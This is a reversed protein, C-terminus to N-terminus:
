EYIIETRVPAEIREVKLSPTQKKMLELEKYSLQLKAKVDALEQELEREKFQREFHEKQISIPISGHDKKLTM